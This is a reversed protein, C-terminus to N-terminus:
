WEYVREAPGPIGMGGGGGMGGAFVTGSVVLSAFLISILLKLTNGRM